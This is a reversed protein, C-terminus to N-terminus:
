GEQLNALAQEVKVLRRILDDVKEELTIATTPDALVEVDNYSVVDDDNPQDGDGTDLLNYGDDDDDNKDVDFTKSDSKNIVELSTNTAISSAGEARKQKGREEEEDQLLGKLGASFDPYMLKKGQARLLSIM